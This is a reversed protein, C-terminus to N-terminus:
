AKLRALIAEATERGFHPSVSALREAATIVFTCHPAGRRVCAIEGCGLQEGSLYEFFGQLLGAPLVDVLDDVDSLIAAFYSHTLRATVLGHDAADALDIKLVGWGHAAFIRELFILCSEFPLAGLTPQGLRALEADLTTAIQRGCDRGCRALLSKWSEPDKRTLVLHVARFFQPAAFVVRLGAPDTYVGTSVDSSFGRQEFFRDLTVSTSQDEPPM